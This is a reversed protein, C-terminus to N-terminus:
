AWGGCRVWVGDEVVTIVIVVMGVRHQSVATFGCFIAVVFPSLFPKDIVYRTESDLFAVDFFRALAVVLLGQLGTGSRLPVYSVLLM